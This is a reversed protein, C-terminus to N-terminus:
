PWIEFRKGADTASCVHELSTPIGSSKKQRSAALQNYKSAYQYSGRLVPCSALQTTQVRQFGTLLVFEESEKNNNSENSHPVEQPKWKFKYLGINM